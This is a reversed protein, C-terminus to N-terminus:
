FIQDFGHQVLLGLIYFTVSICGFMTKVGSKKSLKTLCAKIVFYVLTSDLARFFSMKLWKYSNNM